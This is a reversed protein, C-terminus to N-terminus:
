RVVKLRLFRRPADTTRLTDRFTVTETGDGNDVATGVMTTLQTWGTLDPSVLPHYTVDSGPKRRRFTLTLYTDGAVSAFGASPLLAPADAQFPNLSLAFEMLTTVGDADTDAHPGSVLPNALAAADFNERLWAAFNSANNAMGPTGLPHPSANWSIPNSLDAGATTENVAILSAGAGDTTPYWTDLFTFTSINARALDVLQVPEGGNSFKDAYVGLVRPGNGYRARFAALSEVFVGYEGAPLVQPPLTYHTIGNIFAMGSLDIPGASVNRVEIFEFDDNRFTPDALEAATAPAPPHYNLETIILNAASAPTGVVYTMQAPASWTIGLPTGSSSMTWSNRQTRAVITRSAPITVTGGSVLMAAAPSVGGGPLRPDSGDTTYYITGGAATLAVTTGTSVAGSPRSFSVLTPFQGDIWAMRTTLWNKVADIQGTWTTTAPSDFVSGPPRVVNLYPWKIFNRGAAEALPDAHANIRAILAANELVGYRRLEFWQDIWQQRFDADRLLPVFWDPEYQNDEGGRNYSGSPNLNATSGYLQWGEKSLNNFFRGTGMSLDYDWLPGKCLKGGRDKYMYDSRVYSDQDRVLENITLLDVFSNVDIFSPYGTLPDNNVIGLNNAGGGRAWGLTACFSDVYGGIYSKQSATPVEPQVIELTSWGTAVPSGAAHTDVPEFRLVYGGTVAPPTNDTTTLEAIDVRNNSQKIKETLVYVGVYDASTLEGGDTNLFLEFHRVRPAKLGITRGLDFVLPNRILAKDVYPGSLVWDSDSPLGLLALDLDAGAEDRLELRYQSKPYGSSSAGRRRIGVRACANPTAALSSRGVAPDFVMMRATQYSFDDNPVAGAGFNEIVMLPINSDFTRPPNIGAFNSTVALKQYHGGAINGASGAAFIRARLHTTGSFTVASGPYLTSAATPESGDTTYRIVSGALAFSPTMTVAVSTTFTACPPSLTVLLPTGPAGNIAGPTPVPFYGSPSTVLLGDIGYSYGAVQVPFAPAFESVVTTGDPKVLALYEGNATLKFNTHLPSGAQTRNKDSAFVVLYSGGALTMAPFAWKTLHTADDTLYYGALHIPAANPNFIEIWDNAELDEDPLVSGVAVFESVFPEMAGSTLSVSVMSPATQLNPVADEAVFWVHYTTDTTLGTVSATAEVNATLAISVSRLAPANTSDSGAKVQAASPAPAGEPLVICHAAGKENTRVRVMISTPSVRQAKPWNAVWDPPATDPMITSFNWTTDNAIGAFSNPPVAVDRIATADMWVSYSKGALLDAAPKITLTTGSISVQTTDTIAIATQTGDTLNKVVVHGTGVAIAETFSASLNANLPVDAANDAPGLNTIAPPTTDNVQVNVGIVLASYTPEQGTMAFSQSTGDATFTAIIYKTGGSVHNGFIPSDVGGSSIKSNALINADPASSFFQVYYSRGVTLGSLNISATNNFDGIVRDLVTAWTQPSGVATTVNSNGALTSQFDFNAGAVTIDAATGSANQAIGTFVVDRTGNSITTTPGNFNVGGYTTYGGLTQIATNDTVATWGGWTVPAATAPLLPLLVALGTLILKTQLKV